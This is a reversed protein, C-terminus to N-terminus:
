FFAYLGMIFAEYALVMLHYRLQCSDFAIFVSTASTFIRLCPAPLVVASQGAGRAAVCPAGHASNTRGGDNGLRITWSSLLKYEVSVVADIATREIPVRVPRWNYFSAAGFDRTWHIVACRGAAFALLCQDMGDELRRIPWAATDALDDGRSV